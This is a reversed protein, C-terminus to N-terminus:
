AREALTVFPSQDPGGNAPTLVTAWWPQGDARLSFKFATEDYDFRLHISSASKIGGKQALLYQSMDVLAIDGKDGLTAAQEIPIVPRGMLTGFPSDSLGNAPMYVPVGGTGVAMFMSFLQPEIDQSIFWVANARSPAYMRSWMAFINQTVITDANQGTKKDVTVLCGANMYGLPMGAGTGNVLADDLKFGLEQPIVTGLIGEVSTPSDELLEDTAFYYAGLKNVELKLQGFKPKSKTYQDAESMWYARVGGQRSGNARSTEDIRNLRLSNSSIQMTQARSVVQGTSYTRMLLQTGFEEPVLFGGESDVGENLGSAAKAYKRLRESRNGKADAVTDLAFEGFSKFGGKPDDDSLDDGVVVVSKTAAKTLPEIAVDVATKITAVLDDHEKAKAAVDDAAKQEANPDHSEAVGKETLETFTDDDVSLVTGAKYSDWDQLLKVHKM